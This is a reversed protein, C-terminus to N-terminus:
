QRLKKSRSNALLILLLILGQILSRLGAPMSLAQLINTLLVLVLAGITGGVFGGKGGSLKTGGIVVAAITLMTYDRAMQMQASGAYAVLFLGAAGSIAGGIVYATIIIRKVHLGCLSAAVSNNGALFLSKGYKSRRLLLFEMLIVTVLVLLTLLRIPGFLPNCIAQLSDSIAVAPQGRTVFLSFGNVVSSMILTMVLPPIKLLTTGTGNVLGVISGLFISLVLMVIVDLGASNIKIMPGVLATMSMIAGISMDLGANGSIIVMAQGMSALALIATTLLISSINNSSLFGKSLTNGLILLILVALLAPVYPNRLLQVFINDKKIDFRAFEM